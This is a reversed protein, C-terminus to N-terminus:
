AEGSFATPPDARQGQAEDSLSIYPTHAAAAIAGLEELDIMFIAAAGGFAACLRPVGEISCDGRQSSRGVVKLQQTPRAVGDVRELQNM